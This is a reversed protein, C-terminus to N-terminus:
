RHLVTEFQLFKEATRKADVTYQGSEIANRLQEVRKQDVVPISELSKEVAHLKAASPTITVVDTHQQTTEANRTSQEKGENVRNTGSGQSSESISNSGLGNIDIAM